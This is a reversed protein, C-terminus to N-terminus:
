LVVCIDVANHVALSYFLEFPLALHGSLDTQASCLSGAVRFQTKYAVDSRKYM